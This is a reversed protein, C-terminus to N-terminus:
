ACNKSEKRDLVVSQAEKRIPQDKERCNVGRSNKGVARNRGTKKLGCTSDVHNKISFSFVREMVTYLERLLM